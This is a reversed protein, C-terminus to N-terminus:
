EIRAAATRSEDDFTHETRVTRAGARWLPLLLWSLAVTWGFLSLWYFGRLLVPGPYTLTVEALGAPVQFMVLGDPSRKTETPTGNVTAHYGEVFIRPTEMWAPGASTVTARLPAWSTINIPLDDLRYEKLTMRGFSQLPPDMVTASVFTGRVVASAASIRLPIARKSTGTTGFGRAEGSLAIGVGSEPLYYDRQLTVGEIILSGQVAPQTFDFELSYHRGAELTIDDFLVYYQPAPQNVEIERSFLSHGSRGVIAQYNSDVERLSELDLLRNEWVPDVYGHSFYAPAPAFSTFAYRTLGINQPLHSLTSATPNTTNVKARRLFVQAQGASWDLGSALLVASGALLWFPRRPLRTWAVYGAFVIMAAVPLYLRQMPWYFTLDVVTQPVSRWLFETVAPIPLVGALLVISCTILLAEFRGRTILAGVAGALLMSWLTWGLQYDSLLTASESVPFISAPFNDRLNNLLLTRDVALEDLRLLFVSAFVGGALVAFVILGLLWNGALAKLSAGRYLRALQTVAAVASVWFAIPSHCAWLAALAAALKVMGRTERGNTTEFLGLMAIPIFPLTCVSMFLDGTYALSLVAPSIIFIMALVLALWRSSGNARVLCVYTSLAGAVMSAALTINVLAFPPLSRLTIADMAAAAHQLFPAFRVPSVAGNYAFETQGVFVPFIGERLQMVFDAVMNAYWYADATGVMERTLLPEAVVLGAFAALTWRLPEGASQIRGGTFWRVALLLPLSGLLIAMAGSRTVQTDQGASIAPIVGLAVISAIGFKILLVANGTWPWALSNAGVAVLLATIVAAVLTCGEWGIQHNLWYGDAIRGVATVILFDCAVAFFSYRGSVELDRAKSIWQVIAGCVSKARRFRDSTFESSTM